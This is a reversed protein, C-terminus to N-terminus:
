RRWRKWWPRNEEQPAERERRWAALEREMREARAEASAERARDREATRRGQAEVLATLREIAEQQRELLEAVQALRQALESNDPTPIAPLPAGDDVVELTQPPNDPLLLLFRGR